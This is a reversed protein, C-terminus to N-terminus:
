IEIMFKYLTNMDEKVDVSQNCLVIRLVKNFQRDEPKYANAYNIINMRYKIVCDENESISFLRRKM